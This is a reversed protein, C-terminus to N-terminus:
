AEACHAMVQEGPLGETELRAVLDRKDEIEALLDALPVGHDDAFRRYPRLEIDRRIAESADVCRGLGNM